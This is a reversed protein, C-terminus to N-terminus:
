RQATSPSVMAPIAEVLKGMVTRDADSGSIAVSRVVESLATLQTCVAGSIAMATPVGMAPM